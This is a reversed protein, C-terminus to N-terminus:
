FYGGMWQAQVYLPVAAVGAYFSGSGPQSASCVRNVYSNEFKNKSDKM